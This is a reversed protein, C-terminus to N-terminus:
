TAAGVYRGADAAVAESQASAIWEAVIPSGAFREAIRLYGAATERNM